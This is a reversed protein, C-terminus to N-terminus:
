KNTTIEASQVNAHIDLIYEINDMLPFHYHM